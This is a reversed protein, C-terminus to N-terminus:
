DRLYDKNKIKVIIRSGTRTRLEVLPKAVIGEWEKFAGDVCMSILDVLTAQATVGDMYDFPTRMGFYHAINRVGESALWVGGINVDFLVVEDKDLGLENGQIKPGMREGYLLVTKERGFKEEFFEEAFTRNMYGSFETTCVFNNTKGNWLVQEGDWKIRINAGDLKRLGEWQSNALYALEASRYIDPVCDKTPVVLKRIHDTEWLLKNQITPAEIHHYKEDFNGQRTKAM